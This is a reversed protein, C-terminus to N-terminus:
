EANGMIPMMLSPELVSDLRDMARVAARVASEPGEHTVIVVLAPRDEVAAPQVLSEISVMADRLAATLEALVGPRDAVTLRLYHRGVHAEADADALPQLAGLTMGFPPLREGRAIAILDAVVASATPGAGAGAGQFFLRGAQDGEVVVANLPGEVGALPHREPVLVPRVQQLLRGDITEALGVLRVRFGLARAQDIDTLRVGRIGSTEVAAFDPPGGFALSALLTLKHAADVGDIDFGPDAEAFGLRQAEALVEAFDRGDRDMASLIYNCTGNLIGSVRVIRNAAAGEALGKIVPIGGAVAAEFRLPLGRTEALDALEAGHHALM